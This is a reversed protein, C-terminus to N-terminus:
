RIEITASGDSFVLPGPETTSGDSYGLPGPETTSGDGPPGPETTSYDSYGLPGPEIRSGPAAHFKLRVYATVAVDLM